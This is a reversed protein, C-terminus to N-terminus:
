KQQECFGFMGVLNHPQTKDHRDVEGTCFTARCQQALTCHWLAMCTVGGIGGYNFKKPAGGGGYNFKKPM